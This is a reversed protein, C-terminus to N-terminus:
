RTIDFHKGALSYYEKSFRELEKEHIKREESEPPIASIFQVYSRIRVDLYAIRENRKQEEQTNM